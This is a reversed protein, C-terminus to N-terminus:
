RVTVTFKIDTLEGAEQNIIRDYLLDFPKDEARIFMYAILEGLSTSERLMEEAQFLQYNPKGDSSSIEKKIKFDNVTISSM